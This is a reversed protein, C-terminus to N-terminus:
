GGDKGEDALARLVDRVVADVSRLDKTASTWLALDRSVAAQADALAERRGESRARAVEERLRRVIGNLKRVSLSEPEAVWVDREEDTPSPAPRERIEPHDSM